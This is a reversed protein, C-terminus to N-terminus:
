PVLIVEDERDAEIETVDDELASSVRINRRRRSQNVSEWYLIRVYTIVGYLDVDVYSHTANTTFSTQSTAGEIYDAPVPGGM